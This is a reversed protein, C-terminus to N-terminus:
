INPPYFGLLMEKFCFGTSVFLVGRSKVNIVTTEAFHERAAATLGDSDDPKCKKFHKLESKLTEFLISLSNVKVLYTLTLFPYLKHPSYQFTLMHWSFYPRDPQLHQFERRWFPNISKKQLALRWWRWAVYKKIFSSKAPVKFIVRKWFNKRKFNIRLNM